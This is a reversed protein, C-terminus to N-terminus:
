ETIKPFLKRTDEEDFEENNYLMYIDYDAIYCGNEDEHGDENELATYIVRNDIISLRDPEYDFYLVDEIFQQLALEATYLIGDLYVTKSAVDLYHLDKGEGHENDWEAVRKECRFIISNVPQALM